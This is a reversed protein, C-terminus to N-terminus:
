LLFRISGSLGVIIILVVTVRSFWQQNLHNKIKIGAMLAIIVPILALPVISMNDTHLLGNLYFLVMSVAGNIAFCTVLTARFENKEWGMAYGMIILPPGGMAASGSLLGSILGAIVYSGASDKIRPKIGLLFFIGLVLTTLSIFLRIMDQDAHALMYVGAPLSVWCAIVIKFVRSWVIHKRTEFGIVLNLIWVTVSFAPVIFRPETLLTLLPVAFLGGGFGGISQILFGLSFIVYIM